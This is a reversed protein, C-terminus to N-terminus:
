SSIDRFKQNLYSNCSNDTLNPWSKLSGFGHLRNPDDQIGEKSPSNMVNWLWLLTFNVHFQHTKSPQVISTEQLSNMGVMSKLMNWSGMDDQQNYVCMYIYNYISIGYWMEFNEFMMCWMHINYQINWSIEELWSALGLEWGSPCRHVMEQPGSEAKRRRTGISSSGPFHPDIEGNKPPLDVIEIAM